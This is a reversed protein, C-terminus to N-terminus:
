EEGGKKNAREIAQKIFGGHSSFRNSGSLRKIYTKFASHAVAEAIGSGRNVVISMVPEGNDRITIACLKKGDNGVERELNLTFRRKGIWCHEVLGDECNARRIPFMGDAVTFHRRVYDAHKKAREDDDRAPEDHTIVQPPVLSPCGLTVPTETAAEFIEDQDNM